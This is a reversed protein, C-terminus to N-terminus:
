DSDYVPTSCYIIFSSQAESFVTISKLIEVRLLTTPFNVEQKKWGTVQMGPVAGAQMRSTEAKFNRM